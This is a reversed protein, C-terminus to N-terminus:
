RIAGTRRLQAALEDALQQYGAANPHVTDSKLSRESLIKELSTDNLPVEYQKALSAYLPATDLGLGPRPVGILLVPIRRQALLELMAALNATTETEPKRQLFDNGGLCLLVLQPKTDELVDPLRALGEATTEGPIGANIVPHGTLSSLRAPYADAKEAGTGYTLSDGFALITAGAPLRPLSTEGCGLVCCALLLILLQRM